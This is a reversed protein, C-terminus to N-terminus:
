DPARDSPVQAQVAGDPVQRGSMRMLRQIAMVAAEEIEALSHDHDLGVACRLSHSEVGLWDCLAAHLRDHDQAMALVDAGYGLERATARYSSTDHPVSEVVDGTPLTVRCGWPTIVASM